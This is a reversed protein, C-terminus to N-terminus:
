EAGEEVVVADQIPEGDVDGAGQEQKDIERHLRDLLAEHSEDGDPLGVAAMTVRVKARRWGLAEFGKELEERLAPDDPWQIDATGTDGAATVTPREPLEGEGIIGSISFAKRLAVSEACKQIMADPHTEWTNRGQNYFKWYAIFFTDDHGKRRCRAWAGVIPGRLMGDPGGHSPKGEKDRPRHQVVVKETEDEREELYFDFDDHERLVGSQCGLFMGNDKVKLRGEPTHRNAIGMLGDRSVQIIVRGKRKYAWIEKIFPDLQHRACTELFLALEADNDLDKAVTARILDVQEPKFLGRARETVSLSRPESM